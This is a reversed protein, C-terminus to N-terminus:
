PQASALGNTTAPAVDAAIQELHSPQMDVSMSHFGYYGGVVLVLTLLHAAPALVAPPTDLRSGSRHSVKEAVVSILVVILLLHGIADIAGFELIAATMMAALTAAAAKRVAPTWLLGFGLGFEVAGALAILLDRDIDLGLHPHAQLIHGTWQPYAWKEVAAWMLSFALGYRAFTLRRSVPQPNRLSSSALFAAIGLFVPYDMMHFTGYSAIGYAMLAVIGLAALPLTSRWFMAAAIAAQLLPVWNADTKLEPTLILGGDLALASFFVAASGRFLDEIRTDLSGTMKCCLNLFASGIRTREVSCAVWFVAIVVTVTPWVASPVSTLSVPDETLDYPSFWKVHALAPSAALCTLSSIACPLYVRKM